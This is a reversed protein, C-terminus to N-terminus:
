GGLEAPPMCLRGGGYSIYRPDCSPFEPPCDADMLCHQLCITSGPDNSCYGRLAEGDSGCFYGARETCPAGLAASDFSPSSQCVGAPYHYPTCLKGAPCGPHPSWFDCVEGCQGYRDCLQGEICGTTGRGSCSEGPRANGARLCVLLGSDWDEGAAASYDCVFGSPCGPGGPYPCSEFCAYTDITGDIRQRLCVEGASCPVTNELPRTQSLTTPDYEHGHCPAVCQGNPDCANPWVCDSAHGCVPEESPSGAAGGGATAGVGSGGLEEGGGQSSGGAHTGGAPAGSSGGNAQAEGLSGASRGGCGVSHAAVVLL